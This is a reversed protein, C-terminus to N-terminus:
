HFKRLETESKLTFTIGEIGTPRLFFINEGNPWFMTQLDKTLYNALGEPNTVEVVDTRSLSSMPRKLDDQLWLAAREVCLTFRDFNIDVDPQHVLIHFHLRGRLDFSLKHREAIVTAALGVEKKHWRPGWLNRNIHKSCAWLADVAKQDPYPNQFSLTWMYKYPGTSSLFDQWAQYHSRDPVLDDYADTCLIESEELAQQDPTISLLRQALLFKEQKINIVGRRRSYNAINELKM